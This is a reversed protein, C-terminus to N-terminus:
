ALPIGGQKSATKLLVSLPEGDVGAMFLFLFVAREGLDLIEAVHPHRIRSALSAEDLFMQEFQPDESLQPLITKIAVIKQFGRTGKLRAAWVTAMGGSAIPMLLEYRGLVHGAGVDGLNNVIEAGGGFSTQCIERDGELPRRGRRQDFGQRRAAHEAYERESPCM